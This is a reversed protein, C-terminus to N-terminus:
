IRVGTEDRPISLKWSAAELKGLSLRPVGPAWGEVPKEVM